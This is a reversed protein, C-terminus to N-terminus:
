ATVGLFPLLVEGLLCWTLWLCPCAGPVLLLGGFTFSMARLNCLLAQPCVSSAHLLLEGCCEQLGGCTCSVIAERITLGPCSLIRGANRLSMFGHQSLGVCGRTDGCLARYPLAAASFPSGRSVAHSALSLTSLVPIENIVNQM